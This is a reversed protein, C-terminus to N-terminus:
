WIIDGNVKVAGSAQLFECELDGDVKCSGSIKIDRNYKGGPLVMSGSIKFTSGKESDFNEEDDYEVEFDEDDYKEDLKIM